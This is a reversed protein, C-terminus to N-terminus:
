IQRLKEFISPFLRELEEEPRLMIPYTFSLKELLPMPQVGKTGEMEKMMEEVDMLLGLNQLKRLIDTDIANLGEGDTELSHQRTQSRIVEARDEGLRWFRWSEIEKQRKRRSQSSNRGSAVMWNMDWEKCGSTVFCGTDYIIRLRQLYRLRGLLCLGGELQLCPFIRYQHGDTGSQCDKPFSIQLDEVLPCVRAVYGFVIRSHVPHQLRFQGPAHVEIHLTRLGRCRWIQPPGPPTSSVNENNPLIADHGRDLHIYGSRGFLDMDEMRLTTKLTTLHAFYPSHCLYQHILEPAQALSVYCCTKPAFNTTAKWMVELTTLTNPQSTITQLLQPTVDLTWLSRESSLYPYIDVLLKETEKASMKLGLSSFHAKDLIINISKLFTFLWTWNYPEGEYRLMAMLKLEKLDPTLRLLAELEFQSIAANHLVLSRLPLRPTTTSDFQSLQFRIGSTGFTDACFYELLPCRSLIKSLDCEAHHSYGVKITLRTLSSPIPFSDIFTEHCFATYLVLERLPTFNYLTPSTTSTSTRKNSSDSNDNVASASGGQRLQKLYESELVLLAVLADQIFHSGNGLHCIYLRGAGPLKRLAREKRSPKWDQNWTVERVLRNQNLIHWQRCVLVASRRTTYNDLYSFILELIEPLDLPSLTTKTTNTTSVPTKQLRRSIYRLMPAKVPMSNNIEGDPWPFYAHKISLSELFPLPRYSKPEMNIMDVLLGLNRPPDPVKTDLSAAADRM